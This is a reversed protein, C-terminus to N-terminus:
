QVIQEKHKAHRLVSLTIKISLNRSGSVQHNESVVVKSVIMYHERASLVLTTIKKNSTTKNRVESINKFVNRIM